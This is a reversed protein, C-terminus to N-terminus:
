KKRVSVRIETLLEDPPTEAPDSIYHEELPGNIEYDNEALWAMMANYTEEIKEFPGRHMAAAVQVAGVQKVGFGQADLGCAVENGSVQSRLEWLLQDDPVQGPTIYYVAIAPGHPAYGKESIWDYLRGFAAPVQTLPGKMRSFAVTAPMTKKLLVEIQSGM